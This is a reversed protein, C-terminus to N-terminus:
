STLIRWAAAAVRPVQGNGLAKIRDVRHAVGDAVRGMGPETPWRGFGYGRPRNSREGSKCREQADTSRTVVRQECERDPDAMAASISGRDIHRGRQGQTSHDARGEDCFDGDAYALAERRQQAGMWCKSERGTQQPERHQIRRLFRLVSCHNKRQPIM